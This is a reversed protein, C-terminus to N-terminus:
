SPGEQTRGTHWVKAEDGVTAIATPLTAVIARLVGEPDLAPPVRGDIILSALGHVQAWVLGATATRAPEGAGTAAAVADHLQQWASGAARGLHDSCGLALTSRFMLGYVGRHARAFDVYARCMAALRATPTAEPVTGAATDLAAVFREFGRAAVEAILQEATEFHNRPAAHSVGARRACERLTFAAPGGEEIMATAAAVLAERLAGHHYTRSSSKRPM